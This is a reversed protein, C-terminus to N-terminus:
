KMKGLLLKALDADEFLSILMKCNKKFIPSPEDRHRQSAMNMLKSGIYYTLVTPLRKMVRIIKTRDARTILDPYTSIESWFIDVTHEQMIGEVTPNAACSLEVIGCALLWRAQPSSNFLEGIEDGSLVGREQEIIAEMTKSNYKIIKVLEKQELNLIKEDSLLLKWHEIDLGLAKLPEVASEGLEVLAKWNETAIMYAIKQEDTDPVWGLKDLATAVNYRVGSNEDLLIRVLSEVAQVDGIEGLARVASAYGNRNKSSLVRILPKVARVDGFGGLARAASACVEKDSLVGILPEVARVDGIEGLVRVASGRITEEYFGHTSPYKLMIGEQESTALVILPEVARVDGIEGLAKVLLHHVDKWHVSELCKIVPEVASEGLKILSSWNYNIVFYTARQEDTEPVWGLRELTGAVTHRINGSKDALATILPEISSEGIQVLSDTAIWITSNDKFAKILSEVAREDGIIGLAKAAHPRVSKDKDRLAKILQKVFPFEPINELGIKQVLEKAPKPNEEWLSLCFVHKYLAEPVGSAEAMSLGMRRLGSDDSELFKRLNDSSDDEVVGGLSTLCLAKGLTGLGDKNMRYSAKWNEKVAQKADKPALKIFTSKAFARVTKDDHLMYIWLIKMLMEDSVEVGTAMSLGMQVMAPDDSELFKRLNETNETM